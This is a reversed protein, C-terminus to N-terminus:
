LESGADILWAAVRHNCLLCLLVSVLYVCLIRFSGRFGKLRLDVDQCSECTRPWQVVHLCLLEEEDELSCSILAQNLLDVVSCHGALVRVVTVRPRSPKTSRRVFACDGFPSWAWHEDILRVLGMDVHRPGLRKQALIIAMARVSFAGAM